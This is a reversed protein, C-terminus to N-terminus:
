QDNIFQKSNISDQNQFKKSFVKIINIWILLDSYFNPQSHTKQNSEYQSEIILFNLLRHVKKSIKKEKKVHSISGEIDNILVAFEPDHIIM